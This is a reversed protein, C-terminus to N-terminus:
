LIHYSFISFIVSIFPVSYWFVQKTPESTICPQYNIRTRTWQNGSDFQQLLFRSDFWWIFLCVIFIVDCWWDILYYNSLINFWLTATQYICATRSFIYSLWGVHLTAFLYTSTRSRISTTSHFSLHVGGEGQQGALLWHGHFFVRISFWHLLYPCFVSYWRLLHSLLCFM